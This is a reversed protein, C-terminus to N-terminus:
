TMGSTSGFALSEPIADPFQLGGEQPGPESRSAGEARLAGAPIVPAVEELARGDLRGQRAVTTPVQGAKSGQGEGERVHLGRTGCGRGCRCVAGMALPAVRRPPRAGRPRAHR